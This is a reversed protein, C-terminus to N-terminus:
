QDISIEVMEAMPPELNARLSVLSQSCQLVELYLKDTQKRGKHVAEDIGEMTPVIVCCGYCCMALNSFVLTFFAIFQWQQSDIDLVM